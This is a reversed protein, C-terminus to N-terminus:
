AAKPLSPSPVAAAAPTRLRRLEWALWFLAAWWPGSLDPLHPFRAQLDFGDPSGLMFLAVVGSYLAYGIGGGCLAGAAIPWLFYYDWVGPMTLLLALFLMAAARPLEVKRLVLVAALVLLVCAARRSAFSLPFM